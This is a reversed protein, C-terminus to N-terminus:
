FPLAMLRPSSVSSGIAPSSWATDPSGTSSLLGSDASSGDSGAGRWVTTMEPSPEAAMSPSGTGTPSPSATSAAIRSLSCPYARSRFVVTVAVM